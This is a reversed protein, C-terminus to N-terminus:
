VSCLFPLLLPVRVDGFQLQYELGNCFDQINTITDAFQEHYTSGSGGQWLIPEMDIVNDTDDEDEDSINDETESNSPASTPATVPHSLYEEHPVLNPHKWFPLTWNWKM